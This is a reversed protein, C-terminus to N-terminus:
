GLVHPAATERPSEQLAEQIKRALDASQFPKQIFGPVAQDTFRRAVEQENYGSAMVVPVGPRIARIETFAAEGSMRPMTLDLLVCDIAQPQRRFLDVAERGDCAALVDYGMRRLMRSAVDRVTEDDDVVLITGEAPRSPAAAKAPREDPKPAEDSRAPFLVKFTTGEGPESYIRMTGSHGRVIGLVAALGLGRGTFKTTFFPEFIKGLTEPSMGCGNDSVEVYVYAGEPLDQGLSTERLYAADCHQLGTSIMIVGSREGIAESANTILNMVIQRVQTPDAEIKPLHPAFKYRLIVSKSISVRLLHGMEEVALGLDVAQIVFRGKGSYALMQRCLEAARQSATQIEGLCERAPSDPSLDSLALDANGLIGMLLNNFDHAIGGALVGLSELKQAQRMQSELKENEEENRKRTLLHGLTAAYLSLFRADSETLPNGSLLNDTSIFGIVESGDWLAASAKGGRGVPTDPRSGYLTADPDFVYPKQRRMAQAGTTDPVPLDRVHREDRLCGNEDTGFAGHMTGRKADYFWLGLREFGLRSRGMEIAARCLDDFGAEKVLANGTEHLATLRDNFRRAEDEARKRTILHGVTAAYLALFQADNENLPDHRLLNDTSIWGIVKEGDWLAAAARAGEGAPEDNGTAYLPANQEILHRMREHVIRAGLTGARPQRRIAREDCLDGAEDTGFAGHAMGTEEDYFWIGLRDFGLRERGM